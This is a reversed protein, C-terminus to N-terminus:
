VLAILVIDGIGAQSPEVVDSFTVAQARAGALAFVGITICLVIGTRMHEGVPLSRNARPQREM